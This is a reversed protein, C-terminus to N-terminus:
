AARAQTELAATLTELADLAAATEEVLGLAEALTEARALYARAAKLEAAMTARALVESDAVDTTRRYGQAKASKKDAQPVYAVANITVRSRVIDVTVSRILQRAQELRWQDAAKDDDWTFRDHLASEPNRAAEVVARPTLVGRGKKTLKELEAKVAAKQKVDM